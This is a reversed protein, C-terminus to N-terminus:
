IKELRIQALEANPIPATIRFGAPTGDSWALDFSHEPKSLVARKRVFRPDGPCVASSQVLQLDEFVQWVVVAGSGAPGDYNLSLPNGPYRNEILFYERAVRAADHLLLVQHRLEVAPLAWTTTVQTDLDIAVPQVLGNKMKWFADLHTALWAQDMVSHPGPSIAPCVGYLEHAGVFIHHALEHAAIGVGWRLRGPDSSLYLDLIPINLSMPSGDLSADTGVLFGDPNNQPRVIAVVLEDESIHNNQDTDYAHFDVVGDAAKLADKWMHHFRRQNNEDLEWYWNGQREPPAVYWEGDQCGVYRVQSITAVGNSNEMLWDRLNPGRDQAPQLAILDPPISGPNGEFTNRIQAFSPRTHGPRIPDFGIV